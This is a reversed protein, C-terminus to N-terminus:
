ALSRHQLAPLDRRVQALREPDIDGIVIAPGEDREAVVVGWPDILISHGYTRCGGPHLWGQAAAVV